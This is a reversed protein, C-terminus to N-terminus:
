IPIRKVRSFVIVMAACYLAGIVSCVFGAVNFPVQSSASFVLYVVPSTCGILSVLQGFSLLFFALAGSPPILDITEIEIGADDVRARVDDENEGRMMDSITQGTQKDTGTFRYENM